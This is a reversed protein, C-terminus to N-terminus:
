AAPPMAAILHKQLESLAVKEERGWPNSVSVMGSDADYGTVLVYHPSTSSVGSADM